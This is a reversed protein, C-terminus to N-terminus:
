FKTRAISDRPNHPGQIIRLKIINKTVQKSKYTLIRHWQISNKKKKLFDFIM